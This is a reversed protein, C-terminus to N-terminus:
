VARAGMRQQVAVARRQDLERLLRLAAAELEAPPEAPPCGPRPDLEFVVDGFRIGFPVLHGGPLEEHLLRGEPRAGLTELFWAVDSTEPPESANGAVRDREFSILATLNFLNSEVILRQMEARTPRVGLGLWDLIAPLIPLPLASDTDGIDPAMLLSPEDLIGRRVSATIIGPPAFMGSIPDTGAELLAIFKCGLSHGVWFHPVGALEPLQARVVDREILLIEAIEAHNFGFTFPVAIITYGARFLTGLFYDYSTAPLQGFFQGGYFEVVGIPNPHRAVLSRSIREYRPEM